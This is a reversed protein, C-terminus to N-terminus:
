FFKQLLTADLDGVRKELDQRSLLGTKAGVHQIVSAANIVGSRISNEITDGLFLSGVFASGFADGAGVSSVVEVALSPHFFIQDEQAVYVGEAGNTVVVIKPGRDMVEKFYHSLHLCSSDGSKHAQLLAPLLDQAPSCVHGDCQVRTQRLSKMLLTAEFSNLILIDIAHLADRLDDAGSKLQSSGPNTAVVVNHKKAHEVIPLLLRATISTLSTIYLHQASEIAHFPLEELTLEKTAGRYVLISRNGSPCPIIISIATPATDSRAIADLIIGEKKLSNVVYSGQPDNGIKFFAEVDFGLKKFSVATNTAGGGTHYSVNELEIKKGEQILVFCHTDQEDTELHTVMAEYEIFIDQTAGGITLIKM